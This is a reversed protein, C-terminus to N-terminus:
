KDRLLEELESIILESLGRVTQDQYFLDVRIDIEFANSVASIIQVALLSNGGLETFNDDVGIGYIGLTLQWIKVIEREIDNEPEM